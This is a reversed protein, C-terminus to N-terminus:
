GICGRFKKLNIFLPVRSPNKGLNRFFNKLISKGCDGKKSELFSFIVSSEELFMLVIDSFNIDLTASRSNWFDM